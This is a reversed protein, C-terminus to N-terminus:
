LSSYLIVSIFDLGYKILSDASLEIDISGKYSNGEKVMNTKSSTQQRPNNPWSVHYAGILITLILIHKMMMVGIMIMMFFIM